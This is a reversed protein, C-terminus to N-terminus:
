ICKGSHAVDYWHELAQLIAELTQQQIVCQGDKCYALPQEEAIASVSIVLLFALLSKMM